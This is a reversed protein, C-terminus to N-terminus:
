YYAQPPPPPPYQQQQMPQQTQMQPQQMQPPPVQQYPPVSQGEPTPAYYDKSEGGHVAPTAVPVVGVGGAGAGTVPVAGANANAADEPAVARDGIPPGGLLLATHSVVYIICLFTWAFFFNALFYKALFLEITIGRIVNLGFYNDVDSGLTFAALAISAAILLILWTMMSQLLLQITLSQVVQPHNSKPTIHSVMRRLQAKRSVAILMSAAAACMGLLAFVDFTIFLGKQADILSFIGFRYSSSLTQEVVATAVSLGALLLISIFVMLAMHVIVVAKSMMRGSVSHLQRCIPVLIVGYVFLVAISLFWTGAISVRVGVYTGTGCEALVMGIIQLITGSFM